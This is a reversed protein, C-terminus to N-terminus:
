FDDIATRDFNGARIPKVVLYVVQVDWKNNNAKHIVPHIVKHILKHIVPHIHLFIYTYM